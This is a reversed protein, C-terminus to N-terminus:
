PLGIAIFAQKIMLIWTIQINKGLVIQPRPRAGRRILPLIIGM